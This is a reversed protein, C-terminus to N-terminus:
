SDIVDDHMPFQQTRGRNDMTMAKMLEQTGSTRKSRLKSSNMEISSDVEHIIEMMNHEQPSVVAEEDETNTLAPSLVDSEDLPKREHDKFMITPQQEVQAKVHKFKCYLYYLQLM